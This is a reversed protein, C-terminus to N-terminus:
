ELPKIYYITYNRETITTDISGDSYIIGTIIKRDDMKIARFLINGLNDPEIYNIIYDLQIEEFEGTPSEINLYYITNEKFYYLRDKTIILNAIYGLWVEECTYEEDNIWTLHTITREVSSEWAWMEKGTGLYYEENGIKKLFRDRDFYRFKDQSTFSTEELEGNANVRRNDDTYVMRNTSLYLECETTKIQGNTFIMYGGSQIKTYLNGFKDAFIPLVPFVDTNVIEELKLEGNELSMRYISYISRANHDIVEETFGKLYICDECELAYYGFDRFNFDPKSNIYFGYVDVNGSIKYIKGTKNDIAYTKRSNSSVRFYDEHEIFKETKPGLEILTFNKFLAFATIHKNQEKKTKGNPTDTFTIEEIEGDERLGLLYGGGDDSFNFLGDESAASAYLELNKSKNKHNSVNGVGLAVYSNFNVIYMKDINFNMNSLGLVLGLVSGALVLVVASIITALKWFPPKLKQTSQEESVANNLTKIEKVRKLIIEARERNTKM